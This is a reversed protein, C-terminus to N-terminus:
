SEHRNLIADQEALLMNQYQTIKDLVSLCFHCLGKILKWVPCVLCKYFLMHRKYKKM